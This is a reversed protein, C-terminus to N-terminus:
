CNAVLIEFFCISVDRSEDSLAVNESKMRAIDARLENVALISEALISGKDNRPRIPDSLM